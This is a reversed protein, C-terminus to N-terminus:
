ASPSSGPESNAVKTMTQPVGRVLASPMGSSESKGASGQISLQVCRGSRSVQREEGVVAPNQLAFEGQHPTDHGARRDPRRGRPGGM